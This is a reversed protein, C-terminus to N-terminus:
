NGVLGEVNRASATASIHLSSIGILSIIVTPRNYSISVTVTDGSVSATGPHGASAAYADAVRIARSANLTVTGVSRLRSVSIQGAGARAAQEAIGYAARDAAIAAGGDVVLGILVFLSFSIVAFFATLSGTESCSRMSQPTMVSRRLIPTPKWWSGAHYHIGNVRGSQSSMMPKCRNEGVRTEDLTCCGGAYCQSMKNALNCM